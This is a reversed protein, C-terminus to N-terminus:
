YLDWNNWGAKKKAERETMGFEKQYSEDFNGSGYENLIQDLKEVKVSFLKEELETYMQKLKNIEKEKENLIEVINKLAEYNKPDKTIEVMPPIFHSDYLITPKNTKSHAISYQKEKEVPTLQVHRCNFCITKYYWGFTFQEQNNYTKESGCKPCKAM